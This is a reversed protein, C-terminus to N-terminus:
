MGAIEPWSNQNFNTACSTTIETNVSEQNNAM